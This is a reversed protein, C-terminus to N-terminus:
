VTYIRDTFSWKNKLRLLKPYVSEDLHWIILLEIEWLESLLSMKVTRIEGSKVDQNVIPQTYALARASLYFKAGFMNM